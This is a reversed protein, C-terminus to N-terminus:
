INLEEKRCIIDKCTKKANMETYSISQKRKDNDASLGAKNVQKLSYKIKRAELDKHHNQSYIIKQSNQNVNINNKELYSM